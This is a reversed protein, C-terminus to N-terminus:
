DVVIYRTRNFVMEKINTVKPRINLIEKDTGQSKNESRPPLYEKLEEESVIGKTSMVVYETSLSKELKCQLYYQDNHLILSNTVHEGWTEQAHFDQEKDERGRQRNVSNEYVFNLFVNYESRKAVDGYFPNDRKVGDSDAERSRKNMKPTTQLKLTVVTAGKISALLDVLQGTTVRIEANAGSRKAKKM